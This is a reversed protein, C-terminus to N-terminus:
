SVGDINNVWSCMSLSNTTIDYVASYPITMFDNDGDYVFAENLKGASPIAGSNTIDSSGTLNYITNGSINVTDFTYYKIADNTTAYAFSCLLLTVFMWLM